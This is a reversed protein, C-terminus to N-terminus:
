NEGNPTRHLCFHIRALLSCTRKQQTVAVVFRNDHLRKESCGSLMSRSLCVCVGSQALIISLDCEPSPRRWIAFPEYYPLRLTGVACVFRDSISNLLQEIAHIQHNRTAEDSQRFETSFHQTSFIIEHSELILTSRILCYISLESCM